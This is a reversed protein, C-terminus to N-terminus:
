KAEEMDGEIYLRTMEVVGNTRVTISKKFHGPYKGTGNYTVKIQGKEGPKIPDKTYEPVTCGCSAIAQNIVLPTEGVNEFTFICSVVPEKESFSGFNHTVKDFKIEAQKQAMAFTMGGLLMMTLLLLKKM